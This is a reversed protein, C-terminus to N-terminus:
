LATRSGSRVSCGSAADSRVDGPQGPLDCYSWIQLWFEECYELSLQHLDQYDDSAAHRIKSIFQRAFQTMHTREIQQATPSWLVNESPNTM